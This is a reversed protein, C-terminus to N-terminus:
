QNNPQECEQQGLEDDPGRCLDEININRPEVGGAERQHPVEEPHPKSCHGAGASVDFLLKKKPSGEGNREAVTMTLM